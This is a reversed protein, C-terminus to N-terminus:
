AQLGLLVWLLLGDVIFIEQLHGAVVNRCGLSLEGHDVEVYLPLQHGQNLSKLAGDVGGERHHVLRHKRLDLLLIVRRGLAAVAEGLRVLQYRNGLVRSHVERFAEEPRELVEEVRVEVVREPERVVLGEHDAPELSSEAFQNVVSALFAVLNEVVVLVVEDHLESAVRRDVVFDHLLITVLM